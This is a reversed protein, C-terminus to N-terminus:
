PKKEQRLAEIALALAEDEIRRLESDPGHFEKPKVAAPLDPKRAGSRVLKDMLTVTRARIDEPGPKAAPAATAKSGSGGSAASVVKQVTSSVATDTGGPVAPPLPSDEALSPEPTPKSKRPKATSAAPKNEPADPNYNSPLERVPKDWDWPDPASEPESPATTGGGTAPQGGGGTSPKASGGVPPKPGGAVPPKPAAGGGGRAAIAKSVLPAAAANVAAAAYTAKWHVLKQLSEGVNFKDGTPHGAAAVAKDTLVHCGVCYKAINEPHNRLDAMGAGVAAQYASAGAQHVPNWASAPAHCSECSVGSAPINNVITAHCKACSSTPAYTDPIGAKKAWSQPDDLQKLTNVHAKPGLAGKEVVQWHNTQTQHCNTCQKFGINKGEAYL